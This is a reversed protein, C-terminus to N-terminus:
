RPPPAKRTDEGIETDRDDTGQRQRSVKSVQSRFRPPIVQFPAGPAPQVEVAHLAQANEGMVAVSGDKVVTQTRRPRLM